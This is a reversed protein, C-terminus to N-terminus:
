TASLGGDNNNNHMTNSANQLNSLLSQLASAQSLAQPKQQLTARRLPPAHSEKSDAFSNHTKSSSHENCTVLAENVSTDNNSAQNSYANDFLAQFNRIKITKNTGDANQILSNVQITSRGNKLLQDDNQFPRAFAGNQKRSLQLHMIQSMRNSFPIQTGNHNNVNYHQELLRQLAENSQLNDEELGLIQFAQQKTVFRGKIRLRKEAVQKRCEYTFKKAANKNHKKHIFKLIRRHREAITLPGIM